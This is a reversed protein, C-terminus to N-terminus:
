SVQVTRVEHRLAIVHTPEIGKFAELGVQVTFEASFSCRKKSVNPSEKPKIGGGTWIEPAVEGHKV